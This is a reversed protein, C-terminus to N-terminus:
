TQIDTHTKNRMEQWEYDPEQLMGMCTMPLYIKEVKTLKSKFFKTLTAEKYALGNTKPKRKNMPQFIDVVSFIKSAV